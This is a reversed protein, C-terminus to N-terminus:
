LTPTAFLMAITKRFAAVFGHSDGIRKRFEIVFVVVTIAFQFGDFLIFEATEDANRIWTFNRIQHAAAYWHWEIIILLHTQVTWQAIHQGPEGNRKKWEERM